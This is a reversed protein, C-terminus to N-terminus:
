RKVNFRFKRHEWSRGLKNNRIYTWNLHGGILEYVEKRVDANYCLAWNYVWNVFEAYNMKRKEAEELLELRQDMQYVFVLHDLTVHKYPFEYKEPNDKPNHFLFEPFFDALYTAIPTFCFYTTLVRHSIGVGMKTFKGFAIDSIIGNGSRRTRRAGHVVVQQEFWVQRVVMNFIHQHSERYFTRIDSILGDLSGEQAEISGERKSLWTLDNVDENVKPYHKM